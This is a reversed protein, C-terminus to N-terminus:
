AGDGFMELTAIGDPDLGTDPIPREDLGHESEWSQADDDYSFKIIAPRSGTREFGGSNMADVFFPKVTPISVGFHGAAIHLFDDETTPCTEMLLEVVSETTPKVTKARTWREAAGGEHSYDQIADYNISTRSRYLALPSPPAADRFATFTCVANFPDQVSRNLYNLLITSNPWGTWLFSGAVNDPDAIDTNESGNRAQSKRHHHTLVFSCGTEHLVRDLVEFGRMLTSSSEIDSAFFKYATDMVVVDAGNAQVLNLLLEYAGRQDLKLMHDHDILLNDVGARYGPRGDMLDNLRKYLSWRSLERDLLLVRSGYGDTDFRGLFPIGAALSLALNDVLLSKGVKPRGAILLRGAKPLIGHEVLFTTEEPPSAHLDALSAVQYPAARKGTVLEAFDTGSHGDRMFYDNIDTKRVERAPLPLVVNRARWGLQEVRQLAAEQGPNHGSCRDLGRSACRNCSEGREPRDYHHFDPNDNDFCIAIRRAHTFVAQFEDRWQGAGPVAVAAYGLQVLLQCKLEGETLIVLGESDGRADQANYLCAHAGAEWTYKYKPDGGPAYYRFFRPRRGELYPIVYRGPITIQRGDHVETHEPEYGLRFREITVDTLGHEYFPKRLVPTLNAQFEKLRTDKDRFAAVFGDEGDIGFFRELTQLNGREGCSASHCYLRSRRPVSV